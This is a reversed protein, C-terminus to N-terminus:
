CDSRSLEQMDSRPFDKQGAKLHVCVVQCGRGLLDNKYAVKTGSEKINSIELYKEAM